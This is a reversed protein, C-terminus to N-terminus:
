YRNVATYATPTIRRKTEFASTDGVPEILEGAPAARGDSTVITAREATEALLDRLRAATESIRISTLKKNM